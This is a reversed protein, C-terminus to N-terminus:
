GSMFHDIVQLQPRLQCCREGREGRRLVQLHSKKFKAIKCGNRDQVPDNEALSLACSRGEVLDVFRSQFRRLVFTRNETCDCGSVM